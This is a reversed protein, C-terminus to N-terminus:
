SEEKKIIVIPPHTMYILNDMDLWLWYSYLYSYYYLLIFHLWMPVFLYGRKQYAVPLGVPSVVQPCHSVVNGLKKEKKKDFDRGGAGRGALSSWVVVM